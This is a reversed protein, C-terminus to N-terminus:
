VLERARCALQLLLLEDPNNRDIELLKFAKNIRYSVANRHLHVRQATRTISGREDLYVHLTQLLREGRAGLDILPQLM